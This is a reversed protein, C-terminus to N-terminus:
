KRFRVAWREELDEDEEDALVTSSIITLAKGYKGLGVIEETVAVCRRGGFWDQLNAKAQAKRALKINMADRNFQHTEVGDPVPDGKKLWDLGKFEKLEDSMFCYDVRNLTSMVVAIPAPTKNVYRIATATLSTQCLTALAEVAALGDGSKELVKSFMPDPMLLGAAFYDAELEYPDSSEFGAQSIYEGESKQFIHDIHGELVFHGIEHAISFRQFGENNFHTAYLIGFTNGYHCLVASVGKATDPKPRVYINLKEKAIAVPDIPLSTIGWERLKKEALQAARNYRQDLM